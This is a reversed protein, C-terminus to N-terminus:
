TRPPPPPPPPTGADAATARLEAFLTFSNDLVVVQAAVKALAPGAGPLKLPSPAAGWLTGGAPLPPPRRAAPGPCVAAGRPLARLLTPLLGFGRERLARANEVLM